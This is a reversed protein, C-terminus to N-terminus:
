DKQYEHALWRNGVDASRLEDATYDATSGDAFRVVHMLDGVDNYSSEVTGVRRNYPDGPLAVRVRTRNPYYSVRQGGLAELRQARHQLAV